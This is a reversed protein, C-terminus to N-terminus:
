KEACNDCTVITGGNGACLYSVSSTCVHEAEGLWSRVRLLTAREAAAVERATM